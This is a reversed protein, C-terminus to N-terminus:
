AGVPQLRRQGLATHLRCVVLPLFARRISTQEFYAHCIINSAIRSLARRWFDYTRTSTRLPTSVVIKGHAEIAAACIGRLMARSSKGPHPLWYSPQPQSTLTFCLRMQSIKALSRSRLEILSIQLSQRTRRLDNGRDLVIWSRKQPARAPRIKALPKRRQKPRTPRVFM